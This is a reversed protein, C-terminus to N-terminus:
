YQSGARRLSGTRGPQAGPPSSQTIPHAPAADIARNLDCGPAPQRRHVATLTTVTVSTAAPSVAILDAARRVPVLARRTGGMVRPCAGCAAADGVLTVLRGSRSRRRRWFPWRFTVWRHDTWAADPKRKTM